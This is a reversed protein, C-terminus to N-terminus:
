FTKHGKYDRCQMEESSIHLGFFKFLTLNIWKKEILFFNMLKKKENEREFKTVVQFSNWLAPHHASVRLHLFSLTKYKKPQTGDCLVYFFTQFVLGYVTNM